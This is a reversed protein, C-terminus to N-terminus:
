LERESVAVIRPKPFDFIGIFKAWRKDQYDHNIAAIRKVGKKICFMLVDNWDKEMEKRVSVSWRKIEIHVLAEDHRIDLCAYCFLGKDDSLAFYTKTPLAEGMCDPKDTEQIM